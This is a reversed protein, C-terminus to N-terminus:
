RYRTQIFGVDIRNVSEHLVSTPTPLILLTLFPSFTVFIHGVFQKYFLSKSIEDGTKQKTIWMLVDELTPGLPRDVAVCSIPKCQGGGFGFRTQIFGVDIRNVSEHLVSTPTPLILLTLFPSFTVFIHGVFQKYFLCKSIDDGTKQKTIWMLVDELTPGLPRDVAVCSIPKCQGGESDSDLITWILVLNKTFGIT